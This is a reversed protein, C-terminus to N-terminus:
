IGHTDLSCVMVELGNAVCFAGIEEVLELFDLATVKVPRFEPLGKGVTLCFQEARELNFFVLLGNTGEIGHRAYREGDNLLYYHQQIPLVDAMNKNRKMTKIM